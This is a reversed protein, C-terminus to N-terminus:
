FKQFFFDYTPHIRLIWSAVETIILSNVRTIITTIKALFPLKPKFILFKVSIEPFEAKIYSIEM